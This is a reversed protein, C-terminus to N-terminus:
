DARRVVFNDLGHPPQNSEGHEDREITYQPGPERTELEGVLQEAQQPPLKTAERATEVWTCTMWSFSEVFRDGTQFTALNNLKAFM